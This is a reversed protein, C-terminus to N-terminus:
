NAQFDKNRHSYHKKETFYIYEIGECASLNGDLVTTGSFVFSKLNALEEIFSLSPVEGCETLKLKELKKLRNIPNFNIIKKCSHIELNVISDSIDDIDTLANNYSLEFKELQNLKEIGKLSTIKAQTLRIDKVKLLGKLEEFNSNKPSYKWLELKKLNILEELGTTKKPLEGYLAELTTLNNLKLQLTTKTDNIALTKLKKLNYIGSIDKIFHNSISLKEITPCEHLFHVDEHEFDDNIEVQFVKHQNIYELCEELHEQSIILTDGEKDKLIRINGLKFTKM